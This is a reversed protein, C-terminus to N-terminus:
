KEYRSALKHYEPDARLTVLDPEASIERLQYGAQLAQALLTMSKQRQGGLEAILAANFLVQPPLNTQSLVQTIEVLARAPQGDRILYLALSSRVNPDAPRKALEAEALQIARRYSQHMKESGPATMPPNAM